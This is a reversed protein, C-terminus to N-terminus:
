INYEKIVEKWVNDINEKVIKTMLNYKIEM